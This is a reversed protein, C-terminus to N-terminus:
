FSEEQSRRARQAQLRVYALNLYENLSSSVGSAHKRTSSSSPRLTRVVLPETLLHRKIGLSDCHLLWKTIAAHRLSSDFPGAREFARRRCFFDSGKWGPVGRYGYRALEVAVHPDSTDGIHEILCGVVDVEPHDILVSHQRELKRPRWIDDADLMAIFEGTAEAVGRCRAADPGANEQRVVRTIAPHREAIRATGDASGDDVVIIEFPPLSQAVVSAISRELTAEANWAPIICSIRPISM